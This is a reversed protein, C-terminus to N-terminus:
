QYYQSCNLEQYKSYIVQADEVSNKSIQHRLKTLESTKFRIMEDRDGDQAEVLQLSSNLEGVCAKIIRDDFTSDMYPRIYDCYEVLSGVHDLVSQWDNLINKLRKCMLQHTPTGDKFSQMNIPKMQNVQDIASQLAGRNQWPLLFTPTTLRGNKTEVFNHNPFDVARYVENRLATVQKNFDGQFNKAQSEVESYWSYVPSLPSMFVAEPKGFLAMKTIRMEGELEIYSIKSSNASALVARRNSELAASRENAILTRLQPSAISKVQANNMRSFDIDLLKRLLPEPAEISLKKRMNNFKSLNGTDNQLDSLRGENLASLRQEIRTYECINQLVALRIKPDRMNLSGQEQMRGLVQAVNGAASLGMVFPLAPAFEPVVALVKTALPTVAQVLGTLSMVIDTTTPLNQACSQGFLSNKSLVGSISQIGQILAAVNNQVEQIKTPDAVIQNPDASIGKLAQGAAVISEIQKQVTDVESTNTGIFGGSCASKFAGLQNSLNQAALVLDQNPQNDVLPCTVGPVLSTEISGIVPNSLKQSGEPTPIIAYTDYKLSQLESPSFDPSTNLSVSKSTSIPTVAESSQAPSNQTTVSPSSQTPLVVPPNIKPPNIVSTPVSSKTQETAAALAPSNSQKNSCATVTFVAAFLYNKVNKM